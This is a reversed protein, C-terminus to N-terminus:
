KKLLTYLSKTIEEEFPQPLKMEIELLDCATKLGLNLLKNKLLDPMNMDAIPTLYLSPKKLFDEKKVHYENYGDELSNLSVQDMVKEYEIISTDENLINKLRFAGVFECCYRDRTEFPDLKFALRYPKFSECVRKDILKSKEYSIFVERIINGNETLLNKWKWGDFGNISGDMFVFWAIINHSDFQDLEIGSKETHKLKTGITNNILDTHNKGFFKDGIKFTKM